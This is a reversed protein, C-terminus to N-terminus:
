LTLSVSESLSLILAHMEPSPYVTFLSNVSHWVVDCASDLYCLSLILGNGLIGSNICKGFAVKATSATCPFICLASHLGDSCVTGQCMQRIQLPYIQTGSNDVFSTLFTKFRNSIERRVRDEDLWERLPGDFDELNVLSEEHEAAYVAFEDSLPRRLAEPIADDGDLLQQPLYSRGRRRGRGEQRDRDALLADIDRRQGIAM